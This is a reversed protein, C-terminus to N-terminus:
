KKDAEQEVSKVMIGLKPDNNKFKLEYQRGCSECQHIKDQQRIINGCYVCFFVQKAM